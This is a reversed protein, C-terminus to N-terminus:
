KGSDQWGFSEMVVDYVMGGAVGSGETHRMVELIYTKGVELASHDYLYFAIGDTTIVQTYHPYNIHIMSSKVTFTLTIPRPYYMWAAYGLVSFLFLVSFFMAALEGRSWPEYRYKAGGKDAL